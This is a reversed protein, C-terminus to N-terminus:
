EKKLYDSTMKSGEQNKMSEKNQLFNQRLFNRSEGLANCIYIQLTKIKGGEVINMIYRSQGDSGM